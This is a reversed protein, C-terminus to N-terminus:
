VEHVDIPVSGIAGSRDFFWVTLFRRAFTIGIIFRRDVQEKFSQRVYRILQIITPIDTSKKKFEAPIVIRCWAYHERAQKHEPRSDSDVVPELTAILDPKIDYTFKWYSKPKVASSNTWTLILGDDRPTDLEAVANAIDVFPDYLLKEDTPEKKLTVWGRETGERWLQPRENALRGLMTTADEELGPFLTDLLKGQDQYLHAHLEIRIFNDVEAVNQTTDDLSYTPPYRLATSQRELTRKSNSVSM